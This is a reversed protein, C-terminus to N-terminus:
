TKGPGTAPWTRHRLESVSFASWGRHLGTCYTPAPPSPWATYARSVSIISLCVAELTLGLISDFLPKGGWPILDISLFAVLYNNRNCAPKEPPARCITLNFGLEFDTPRVPHVELSAIISRWGCNDGLIVSCHSCVQAADARHVSQQQCQVFHKM